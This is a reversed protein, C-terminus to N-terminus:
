LDRVSAAASFGASLSADILGSLADGERADDGGAARSRDDAAASSAGRDTEPQRETLVHGTLELIAKAGGGAVAGASAAAAAAQRSRYHERPASFM